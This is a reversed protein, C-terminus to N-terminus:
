VAGGRNGTGETPHDCRERELAEVTRLQQADRVRKYHRATTGLTRGTYEAAALLGLRDGITTITGRIFSHWGLYNPRETAFAQRWAKDVARQLRDYPEAQAPNRESWILPHDPGKPNPHNELLWWYVNALPKTAPLTVDDTPSGKQAAGRWTIEVTGDPSVTFDTACLPRARLHAGRRSATIAGVRRGTEHAIVAAAYARWEGRDLLVQMLRTAQRESIAPPKIYDTRIKRLGKTPDARNKWRDPHADAFYRVVTGFRRLYTKLTNPSAGAALQATVYENLRAKTIADFDGDLPVIGDKHLRRAAQLITNFGGFALSNHLSHRNMGRMYAELRERNWGLVDDPLAHHKQQLYALWMERPTLLTLPRDRPAAPVSTRTRRSSGRLHQLVEQAADFVRERTVRADPAYTRERARPYTIWMRVAAGTGEAHVTGRYGGLTIKDVQGTVFLHKLDEETM